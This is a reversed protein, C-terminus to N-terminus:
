IKNQFLSIIPSTKKYFDHLESNYTHILGQSACTKGLNLFFKDSKESSEYWDCKSRIKM